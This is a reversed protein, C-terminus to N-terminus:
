RALMPAIPERTQVGLLTGDSNVPDDHYAGPTMRDAQCLRNLSHPKLDLRVKVLMSM